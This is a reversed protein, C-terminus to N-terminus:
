GFFTDDQAYIKPGPDHPLYMHEAVRRWLAIEEADLGIKACLNQYEASAEAEMWAATQVAYKLHERAMLNTYFNNDVLATYEDPGTVM